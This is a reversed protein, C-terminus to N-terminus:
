REQKASSRSEAHQIEERLWGTYGHLGTFTAGEGLWRSSIGVLVPGTPKQLFCPGGSDGRYRHKGPQEVQIREGGPELIRTVRNLCFRRENDLVDEVEDYGHGVIIVSDNVRVEEHGVPAPQVEVPEKLFILALDAHTSVVHGQEDLVIKLDPHPRVTGKRTKSLSNTIQEGHETQTSYVTTEVAASAACQTSDIIASERPEPPDKKRRACVCHGATLIVLRSIAVGSCNIGFEETDDMMVLVASPYLNERDIEGALKILRNDLILSTGEKLSGAELPAFVQESQPGDGAGQVPPPEAACGKCGGAVFTWALALLM